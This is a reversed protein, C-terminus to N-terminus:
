VERIKIPQFDGHSDWTLEFAFLRPQASKGYVHGEIRFAKVDDTLHLDCTGRDVFDLVFHEPLNRRRIGLDVFDFAGVGLAIPRTDRGVWKLPRPDHDARVVADAKGDGPTKIIREIRVECESEATAGVNQIRLRVFQLQVEGEESVNTWLTQFPPKESSSIHFYPRNYRERLITLLLTVFVLGIDHYLQQLATNQPSPEPQGPTRNRVYFVLLVACAAGILLALALPSLPRDPRLRRFMFTMLLPDPPGLLRTFQDSSIAAPRWVRPSSGFRRTLM